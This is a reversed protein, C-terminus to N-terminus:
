NSEEEDQQENADSEAVEVDAEVDVEADADADADADVSQDDYYPSSSPFFFFHGLDQVMFMWKKRLHCNVEIEGLSPTTYFLIM